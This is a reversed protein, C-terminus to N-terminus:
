LFPNVARVTGYLRGNEFDESVIEELGYYDAYAWIQADFWSLQYTAHGRIATRVIEENPYVVVFQNLLEETERRADDIPLLAPHGGIPRTVAAFFELIAQHPVRISDNRIGARLLDHAIRQKRRFRADFRYVLINTDVLAAM